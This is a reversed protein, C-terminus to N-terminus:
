DRLPAQRRAAHRAITLLFRLNGTTYRRFLRRPELAFRFLWELGIRSMWEPCRRLTGASFDFAAGVAVATLNLRSVLRAAEIDQKPTGLGVWIINAGSDRIQADQTAYEPASMPRFPPSMSGVIHAHPHRSRITRRLLELTHETSGLLFHRLGYADGIELVREFLDPGRVQKLPRRAIWRAAWTVPKGDALNIRATSITNRLRTDMELLSITYANILHVDAAVNRAAISAVHHAAYEPDLATLTVGAVTVIPQPSGTFQKM